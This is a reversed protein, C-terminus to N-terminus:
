EQNFSAATFVGHLNAIKTLKNKLLIQRSDHQKLKMTCAKNIRDVEEMNLTREEEILERLEENLDSLRQIKHENRGKIDELHKIKDM